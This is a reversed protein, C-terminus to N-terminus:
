NIMWMHVRYENREAVKTDEAWLCSPVSKVERVEQERVKKKKQSSMSIDSLRNLLM